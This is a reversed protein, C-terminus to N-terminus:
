TGYHLSEPINFQKNSATFDIAVTTSIDLGGKLYAIFTPREMLEYKLILLKGNPNTTKQIIMPKKNKYM